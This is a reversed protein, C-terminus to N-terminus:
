HNAEFRECGNFGSGEAIKGGLKGVYSIARKDEALICTLFGAPM